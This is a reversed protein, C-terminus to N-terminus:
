SDGDNDTALLEGLGMDEVGSNGEVSRPCYYLSDFGENHKKELFMGFFFNILETKNHDKHTSELLKDWMKQKEPDYNTLKNYYYHNDETLFNEGTLDFHSKMWDAFADLNKKAIENDRNDKRERVFKELLEKIRM